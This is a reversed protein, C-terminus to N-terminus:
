IVIGPRVAFYKAVCALFITASYFGALSDQMDPMPGRHLLVCVTFYHFCWGNYYSFLVGHLMLQKLANEIQSLGEKQRLKGNLNFTTSNKNRECAKGPKTVTTPMDSGTKREKGETVSQPIPWNQNARKFTVVELLKKEGGKKLDDVWSTASADYRCVDAEKSTRKAM